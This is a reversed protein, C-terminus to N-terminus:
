PRPPKADSAEQVPPLHGREAHAQWTREFAEQIFGLAACRSEADIPFGTFLPSVRVTAPTAPHREQM